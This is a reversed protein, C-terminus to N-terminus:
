RSIFADILSRLSSVHVICFICIEHWSQLASTNRSPLVEAHDKLPSDLVLIDVIIDSAQFMACAPNQEEWLLTQGISATIQRRQWEIGM